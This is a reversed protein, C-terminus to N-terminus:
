DLGTLSEIRIELTTVRADEATPDSGFGVYVVARAAGDPRPWAAQLVPDDGAIRPTAALPGLADEVDVRAVLGITHLPRM